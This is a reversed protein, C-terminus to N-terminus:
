MGLEQKREKKMHLQLTEVTMEDVKPLSRLKPHVLWVVAIFLIGISTCSFIIASNFVTALYGGILSGLPMAIITMSRMVSNVRGLLHNPIMSQSLAAFVVNTGGIPIWAFSFLFIAIYPIPIWVSLLWSLSAITFSIILVYGLKYKGFLSGCLAGILSGASIATLYMGYWEVGGKADTFSPLIAYTVGISFNVVIPGVLFVKMLSHFVISFGESLDAFYSKMAKMTGKEENPIIQNTSPIKILRFLLAAIYYFSDGINTVIRGSFLFLFNKNRLLNM